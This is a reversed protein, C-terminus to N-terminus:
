LGYICAGDKGKQEYIELRPNDKDVQFRHTISTIHAMNDNELFVRGNLEAKQMGDFIYKQCFAWNDPDIRKDKLHWDFVLDCPWDFQVGRKMAAIVEYAVYNTMKKKASSAAYRNRRELNIYKNM